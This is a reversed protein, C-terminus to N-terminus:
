TLKYSGGKGRHTFNALKKGKAITTGNVPVAPLPSRGRSDHFKAVQEDFAGDIGDGKVLLGKQKNKSNKM